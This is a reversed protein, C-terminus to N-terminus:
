FLIFLKIFANRVEFSSAIICAESKFSKENSSNNNNKSIRFHVQMGRNVEESKKQMRHLIVVFPTVITSYETQTTQTKQPNTPRSFRRVDFMTAWLLLTWRKMNANM